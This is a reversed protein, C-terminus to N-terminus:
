ALAWLPFWVLAALVALGISISGGGIAAAKDGPKFDM